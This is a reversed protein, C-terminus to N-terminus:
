ARTLDVLAGCEASVENAGDHLAAHGQADASYRVGGTEFPQDVGGHLPVLQPGANEDGEGVTPGLHCGGHLRM